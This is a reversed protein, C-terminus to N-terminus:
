KTQRPKRGSNAGAQARSAAWHTSLLMKLEDYSCQLTNPSIFIPSGYHTLNAQMLRRKLASPQQDLYKAPDHLRVLVLRQGMLQYDDIGAVDAWRILGAALGGANDIFGEATVRIGPAQDRLKHVLFWGLGGFLIVAALSLLRVLLPTRLIPNPLFTNPSVAMYLGVGVFALSGLAMLFTKNKSLPIETADAPLM